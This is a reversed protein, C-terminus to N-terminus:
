DSHLEVVHYVLTNLVLQTVRKQLLKLYTLFLTSKLSFFLRASSISVQSFRLTNTVCVHMENSLLLVM